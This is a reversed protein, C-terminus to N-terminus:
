PPLGDLKSARPPPEAARLDRDYQLHRLYFEVVRCRLQHDAPLLGAITRAADGSVTQLLGLTCLGCLRLVRDLPQLCALQCVASCWAPAAYFLTPLIAAHIMRSLIQPHLGWLMGAGRHLARLRDLAQRSVMDIHVSWSLSPDFWVGLYRLRDVLHLPTGHLTLTPLPENKLRSIIMPQCKSPNFIAKWETSWQEVVGLIRQGVTEGSDGKGAHWWVVVDDAFAQAHAIASLDRVLDDIFVLFLIPSLPSGQPVGMDLQRHEISQGVRLGATRGSLFAHIWGVLSAPIDLDMLKALLGEHWVRDYAGQIDLALMFTKRRTQLAHSAVNVFNWLALEASRTKRFGFQHETLATSHELLHTLRDTVIRELVKALCSLLSIPRYGKTLSADGGTKPIAVVVAEKWAAPISQLRLSASFLPLLYPALIAECERLCANPVRDSGTAKWPGSACIATHLEQQSVDITEVGKAKALFESVRSHVAKHMPTDAPPSRPFFYDALARAKGADDSIWNDDVHLDGMRSAHRPRTLKRFTTWLDEDSTDECMRRWSAQKAAAIAQRLHRRCTNVAKKDHCDRTKKWTRQRRLLDLRLQELEPSWWPNSAWSVRKTPVLEDIVSQFAKTLLSATREIDANDIFTLPGPLLHQLRADLTTRFSDWCVSRWDLRTDSTSTRHAEATISGLIARHDSGLDMDLVHWSSILPHLRSSTMTVDIWAEFGRDSCFTAPAPWTNEIALSHTMVLDEVLEGTANSDLEPPGWWRSHGNTDAGILLYPTERRVSTLMASLAELGLGRHHHIYASICAIPGQPTAVFVGCMRQNSFDIPKARLSSRVLVAVLPLTEAFGGGRRSPLFLTYGPIRGHLTRLTDCTDQLLLIDCPQQRLFEVLLHFCVSSHRMNLHAFTLSAGRQRPGRRQDTEIVM